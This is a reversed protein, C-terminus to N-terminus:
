YSGTASIVQVLECKWFYCLCKWTNWFYICSQKTMIVVKRTSSLNQLFYKLLLFFFLSM